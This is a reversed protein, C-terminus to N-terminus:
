KLREIRRKFTPHTSLAEAISNESWRGADTLEKLKMLFRSMNSVGVRKAAIADAELENSRLLYLYMMLVFMSIPLGFGGVLAKAFFLSALVGFMQISHGADVHALEHALLAKLEDDNLSQLTGRSCAIISSAKTGFTIANTKQSDFILVHPDAVRDPKVASVATKLRSLGVEDNILKREDILLRILKAGVWPWVSVLGVLFVTSAFQQSQNDLGLSAMVFEVGGLAIVLALMTLALRAMSLPFM